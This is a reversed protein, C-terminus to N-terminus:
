LGMKAVIGDVTVGPHTVNLRAIQELQDLIKRSSVDGGHLICDCGSLRNLVEQRLLDHTDSLVAIKMAENTPFLFTCKKCTAKKM